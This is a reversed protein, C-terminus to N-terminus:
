HSGQCFTSQSLSSVCVCEDSACKSQKAAEAMLGKQIWEGTIAAPRYRRSNPTNDFLTSTLGHYTSGTPAGGARPSHTVPEDSSSASGCNPSSPAYSTVSNDRPIDRTRSRKSRKSPRNEFNCSQNYAKCTSCPQQGDCRLKRRRCFVCARQARRSKTAAVEGGASAM